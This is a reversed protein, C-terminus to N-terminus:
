ASGMAAGSRPPWLQNGSEHESAATPLSATLGHCTLEEQIFEM